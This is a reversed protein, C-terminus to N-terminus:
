TKISNLLTRARESADHFAAIIEPVQEFDLGLDFWPGSEFLESTGDLTLGFGEHQTIWDALHVVYAWSRSEEPCQTPQHHYRVADALHAPLGWSGVLAGGVQAHDAGFAEQECDTLCGRTKLAGELTKGYERGRFAVLALIGVDHLLGAVFYPNEGPNGARELRSAHEAIVGAAVATTLSHMWYDAQDFPCECDSFADIVGTALVVDRLESFGLRVVADHLEDCPQGMPNYLAGNAISLVRTALGPDAVLADSVERMGASDDELLRLVNTVAASLAPLEHPPPSVRELIRRDEDTM